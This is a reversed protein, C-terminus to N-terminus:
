MEASFQKKLEKVDILKFVFLGITGAALQLYISYENQPIFFYFVLYISTYGAFRLTQTFRFPIEL